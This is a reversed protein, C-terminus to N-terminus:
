GISPRARKTKRITRKRIMDYYPQLYIVHNLEAEGVLTFEIDVSRDDNQTIRTEASVEGDIRSFANPVKTDVEERIEQGDSSTVSPTAKISIRISRPPYPLQKKPM